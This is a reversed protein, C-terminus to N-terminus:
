YTYICSIYILSDLSFFFSKVEFAASIWGNKEWVTSFRSALVNMGEELDYEKEKQAKEKFRKKEHKERNNKKFHKGKQVKEKNNKKRTVEKENEWIRM